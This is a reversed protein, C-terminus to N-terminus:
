PEDPYWPRLRASKRAIRELAINPLVKYAPIGRKARIQFRSGEGLFHEPWLMNGEEDLQCDCHVCNWQDLFADACDPTIHIRSGCCPVQAIVASDREFHLRMSCFPCKFTNANQRFRAARLSSRIYTRAKRPTSMMLLQKLKIGHAAFTSDFHQYLADQGSLLAKLAQAFIWISHLTATSSVVMMTFIRDMAKPASLFDLLHLLQLCNDQLMLYYWTDQQDADIILTLCHHVRDATTPFPLEVRLEHSDADEVSLLLCFLESMDALISPPFRKLNVTFKHM